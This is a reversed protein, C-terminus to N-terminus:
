NQLEKGSEDNQAQCIRERSLDVRSFLSRELNKLVYVGSGCGTDLIDDHGNPYIHKMARYVLVRAGIHWSFRFAQWYDSFITVKPLTINQVFLVM